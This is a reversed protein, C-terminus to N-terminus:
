FNNSPQAVILLGNDKNDNYFKQLDAYQRTFGCASATNVIIVTEFDETGLMSVLQQLQEQNIDKAVPTQWTKNKFEDLSM